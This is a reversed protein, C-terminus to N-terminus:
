AEVFISSGKHQLQSGTCDFCIFLYIFDKLYFLILISLFFIESSCFIFLKFYLTTSQQAMNSGSIFPFFEVDM